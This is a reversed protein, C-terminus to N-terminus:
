NDQKAFVRKLLDTTRQSIDRRIGLEKKEILDFLGDLAKQTVHDTLDPNMKNVFPIQNYANIADSWLELAGFQDLSQDIVPKFEHYLSQRTTRSLYQTAANEAGMLIGTADKITMSTIANFFIPSAKGVADEAARNIRKIVEDELTNFGPLFKLKDIVTMAQEPLLIKYVSKYYGDKKNLTRVGNDVGNNLAEKLGNAIDAETLPVENVTDLVKQLDKPDCSFLSVMTLLFIYLRM